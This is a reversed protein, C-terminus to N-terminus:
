VDKNKTNKKINACNRNKLREFATRAKGIRINIDRDSVGQDNVASGLYTFNTVEEYPVNGLTIPNLFTRKGKNIQLGVFFEQLRQWKIRKAQM